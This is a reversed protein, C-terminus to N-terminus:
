VANKGGIAQEWIGVATKWREDSEESTGGMQKMMELLQMETKHIEEEIKAIDKITEVIDPLPEPIYTDIYRPISLNYENEIIEKRSVSRAYREITKRNIYADLLKAIQSEPMYNKKAEKKFDKQADVFYVDETERAKKMIVIAVPISTNLFMNNPLGIVADLANDKIMNERIIGERGGRFLIGHPIIAILTGDEKLMNYGTQMFAYDSYQKPTIGWRFREDQKWNDAKEWKLSYPPNMIVTDYREQETFDKIEIDSYKEGPTLRWISKEERALSDCHVVEANINRIALNILLIPITRRSFEELHYFARPSRKWMNITLGGTGACIDAIRTQEPALRATIDAVCQPTFDQKLAKRDGQEEQFYDTFVDKSLDGCLEIIKDFLVHSTRRNRLM